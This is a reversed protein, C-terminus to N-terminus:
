GVTLLQEYFGALGRKLDRLHIELIWHRKEGDKGLTGMPVSSGKLIDLTTKDRPIREHPFSGILHGALDAGFSWGDEEAARVAIDHLEEGTMDPDELFLGRVKNWIPELADRIRIKHPDNGHVYTRGFDAEWSEVVLGLDIVLIGDEEIARDPPNDLQYLENNLTKANVGPRIHDREIEDFMQLAKSQAGLLYAARESDDYIKTPM